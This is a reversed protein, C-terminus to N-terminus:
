KDLQVTDAVSAAEELNELCGNKSYSVYSFNIGEKWLTRVYWYLDTGKGDYAPSLRCVWSFTSVHGSEIFEVEPDDDVFGVVYTDIFDVESKYAFPFIEATKRGSDDSIVTSRISWGEPLVIEISNPNSALGLPALLFLIGYFLYRINM